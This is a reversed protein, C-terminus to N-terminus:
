KDPNKKIINYEEAFKLAEKACDAASKKAPDDLISVAMLVELLQFFFVAHKYMCEIRCVQGYVKKKIACM